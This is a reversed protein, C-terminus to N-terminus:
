KFTAAVHVNQSTNCITQTFIHFVSLLSLEEKHLGLDVSRNWLLRENYVYLTQTGVQKLINGYKRTLGLAM